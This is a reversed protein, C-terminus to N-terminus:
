TSHDDKCRGLTEDNEDGEVDGCAYAEIVSVLEIDNVNVRRSVQGMRPTGKEVM